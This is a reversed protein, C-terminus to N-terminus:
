DRVQATLTKVNRRSSPVPRDPRRLRAPQGGTRAAARQGLQGGVRRVQGARPVRHSLRGARDPVPRPVPAPRVPAAAAAHGHFQGARRQQRADTRRRLKGAAAPPDRRHHGADGPLRGPRGAARLAGAAAARVLDGALVGRRRPHGPVPRTGGRRAPRAGAPAAPPRARGARRAPHPLPPRDQGRGGAAPLCAGGGPLPARPHQGRRRDAPQRVRQLHLRLVGQRAPVGPDAAAPDRGPGPHQGQGRSPGGGEQGPGARARLLRGDPLAAPPLLGPRATRGPRRVHGALHAGPQRQGRRTRRHLAGRAPGAARGARGLGAAARPDPGRGCRHRPGREARRAAGARVGARHGGGVPLAGALVAHQVAVPLKRQRAALTRAPRARGRGPRGSTWRGPSGHRWTARAAACTSPSRWALTSARPPAGGSRGARRRGAARSQLTRGTPWCRGAEVPECFNHRYQIWDCVVRLTALDLAASSLAGFVPALAAAVDM